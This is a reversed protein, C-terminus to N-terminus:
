QAPSLTGTVQRGPRAMARLLANVDAAEVESAYKARDLYDQYSSNAALWQVLVGAAQLPEKGAQERQDAARKKLREVTEAPLGKKALDTFYDNVAAIIKEEAVGEKPQVSVDVELVGSTLREVDTWTINAALDLQDVLVDKLSGDLASRLFAFIISRAYNARHRDPEEYRIIKSFSVTTQRVDKDAAKESIDAQSFDLLSNLWARDPAKREPVAAVYKEALAKVADVDVPGHIVFATNGKTYWARHFEQAESLTLAAIDEKTGIVDQGRPHLPQLRRNIVNFYRRPASRGVRVNYEQMVVDRERRAEEESVDLTQLHETYFRFLKELDGTQGEARLPFKQWFVTATRTTFGNTEADPFFRAAVAKHDANRGLFVLHELYHALGHCNAHPEDNCGAKVIMWFTTAKADPDPVVFVTDAVKVEPGAAAPPPAMGLVFLSFAAAFYKTM